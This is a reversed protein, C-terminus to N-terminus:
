ARSRTALVMPRTRTEIYYQGSLFMKLTVVVCQDFPCGSYFKFSYLQLVFVVMIYVSRLISILSRSSLTSRAKGRRFAERGKTCVAKGCLYLQEKGDHDVEGNLAFTLEAKGRHDGERTAVSTLSKM